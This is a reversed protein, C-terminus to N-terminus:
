SMEKCLMEENKKWKKSLFLCIFWNQFLGIRNGLM